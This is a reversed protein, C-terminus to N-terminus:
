FIRNSILSALLILLSIFSLSAAGSCKEADTMLSKYAMVSRVASNSSEFGVTSDKFLLDKTGNFSKYINMPTNVNTSLWSNLKLLVTEMNSRETKSIDKRSM